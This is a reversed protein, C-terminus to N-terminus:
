IIVELLMLKSCVILNAVQDPNKKNIILLNVNILGANTWSFKLMRAISNEKCFKSIYKTKPEYMHVMTKYQSVAQFMHTLVWYM